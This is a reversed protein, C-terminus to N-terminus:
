HVLVALCRTTKCQARCKARLALRSEDDADAPLDDVLRPLPSAFPAPATKPEREKPPLAVGARYAPSVELRQYCPCDRAVITVPGDVHPSPGHLLRRSLREVFGMAVDSRRILMDACRELPDFACLASHDGRENAYGLGRRLGKAPSSRPPLPVAGAAQDRPALRLPEHRRLLHLRPDHASRTGRMVGWGRLCGIATDAWRIRRAPSSASGQV